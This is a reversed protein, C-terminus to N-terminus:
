RRRKRPNTIIEDRPDWTGRNEVSKVQTPSFIIFVTAPHDGGYGGSDVVNHIIVGDAGMALAEHSLWNTTVKEIEDGVEYPIRDWNEGQADVVMPDEIRLYVEYIGPHNIELEYNIYDLAEQASEFEGQRSGDAWVIYINQDEIPNGDIDYEFEKEIEVEFDIMNEVAYANAEKISRFRPMLARENMSTYSAAVEYDDTFFHGVHHRDKKTFSRFGASRSGHYVILPESGIRGDVTVVSQGFWNRFAPTDIPTKFSM